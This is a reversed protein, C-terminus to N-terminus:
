EEINRREIGYKSLYGIAKALVDPDDKFQGLGANCHFCLLERVRGTSHDHDIHIQDESLESFSRGCCGCNDQVTLMIKKLDRRSKGNYDAGVVGEAYRALLRKNRAEYRCRDSCYVSSPSHPYFSKECVPCHHEKNYPGSKSFPTSTRYVQGLRQHEKSCFAKVGRVGRPRSFSEKCYDCVLEVLKRGM